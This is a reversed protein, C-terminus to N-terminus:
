FLYWVLFTLFHLKKNLFQDKLTNTAALLHNRVTNESIHLLDAIEKRSHGELKALEFIRRQQPPLTNLIQLLFNETEKFAIAHETYNCQLEQTSAYNVIHKEINKQQKLMNLAMNKTMTYLYANINTIEVAKNRDDWFRAFISVLVDEADADEKLISHALTYVKHRFRNYLENFAPEDGAAIKLLLQKDKHTAETPIVPMQIRINPKPGFM